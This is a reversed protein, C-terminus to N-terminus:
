EPVNEMTEADAKLFWEMWAGDYLPLDTKTSYHAALALFSATLGTGCMVVVSKNLDVGADNFVVKLQEIDKLLKTDSDMTKMFPINVTGKIHGSKIGPVPEPDEGKFRGPPRADVVTFSNESINSEVDGKGKVLSSRFSPTYTVTEVDLTEDSTPHDEAIWKPLGGNLVSVKDHGFVHFMYWARPASFMGLKENNDYLIVHTDNTVGLKGVQEAFVDASPLMMELDSSTDRCTKLDLFLAGMIHQKEYEAAADRETQPMHWSVDLIRLESVSGDDFKEALWEVSVVDQVCGSKNESMGNENNQNTTAGTSGTTAKSGSCGM